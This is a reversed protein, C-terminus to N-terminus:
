GVLLGMLMRLPSLPPSRIPPGKHDGADQEEPKWEAAVRDVGWGAPSGLPGGLGVDDVRAGVSRGAEQRVEWSRNIRIPYRQPYGSVNRQEAM